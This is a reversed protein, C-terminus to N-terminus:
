GALEVRALVSYAPGQASLKSEMLEVANVEAYASSFAGEKELASAAPAVCSAAKVRGLTLHAAFPRTEVAFGAAGLKEGLLSHLAALGGSGDEVGAWLVQPKAASPFAGCGSLRIQFRAKASAARGPM